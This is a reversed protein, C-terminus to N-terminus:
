ESSEPPTGSAPAPKDAKDEPPRYRLYLEKARTVLTRFAAHSRWLLENAPTKRLLMVRSAAFDRNCFLRKYPTDGFGFSMKSLPQAGGLLDGFILYTLVTGPSLASMSSDFGTARYHFIGEAVVGVGFAAPEGGCELIYGRFLGREAQDSLKTQWDVDRPFPDVGIGSQWSKEAIARAVRLFEAVEGANEFRRLTGPKGQKDLVRVKRKFNDRRKKDLGSNYLEFTAPFDTCFIKGTGPDFPAYMIFRQKVARSTEAWRRMFSEDPVSPLTICACDSAWQDVARLLEDYSAEDEAGMFQSGLVMASKLKFTHLTRPGAVFALADQDKVLPVIADVAGGRGRRVIVAADLPRAGPNKRAHEFWEPSQFTRDLNPSASLLEHWRRVLAADAFRQPSTLTEIGANAPEVVPTMAM